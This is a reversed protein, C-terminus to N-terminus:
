QVEPYLVFKAFNDFKIYKKATNLIDDLTLDEIYKKWMEISDEPDNNIYYYYIQNTWFWNEKQNVELERKLIEKVKNLYIEKQKNTGVDKLVSIADDTLENVRDPNCGFTINLSYWQKPFPNTQFWAGVGYTGGKEERLVERLRINLVENLARTLFRERYNWEFPGTIILRVYSKKEIGKKFQKDIKNKFPVAGDDKWNEKVNKSPISGIYKKVYSKITDLDFNGVFVFIFDSPNSFREFFIDYMKNMNFQEIDAETLPLRRPHWNWMYCQISDRFVKEPRNKSDIINSYIQKKVSNFAEKDIRPETFYLNILEFLTVLDKPSASGSLSEQYNSIQPSLSVKKDSLYKELETRNFQGIGSEEVVDASYVANIYDNDPVLSAGGLSYANFLIEDNKFDTKKLVVTAGNDLKLELAGLQKLEKEQVIKGETVKRNFLPKTPVIDVYPDIKKNSIEVFLKKIDDANPVVVDPREPLSIAIVANENKIFKKSLANVEELKIDPLWQKVLEYEMEIGPTPEGRLFNRVYEFAYNISENKERENYLSEYKRLIEKKAREFETPTFGHQYARFAELLLTEVCRNVENGIAGAFLIFTSNKRGLPNLGSFAIFKFPPNEKRLYENLRYDLMTTYIRTLLNDRYSKYTGEKIEGGKFNIEVRPFSLEKDTAISVFIDKHSPIELYERKRPNKPKPIRTFKEKIIKEVQDVDFDGVAIVAMLDPRYWDQYFRKIVDYKANRIINTDGIVDHIEYKSNYYLWKNHKREVRDDAGRGLRYEEIVVGREKDIETPDYSVQHAWDELVQFGKQFQDLSDTPIQLMYVTEDWSTYANLEPGFKVGISELYDVLAQKPFNKTGNFAMHECFHALGNQDPDECIAGANVVLMLEARKEPKKNYRIYYKLGNPLTGVKLKPDIPMIEDLSKYNVTPQSFVFTSFIFVFFVFLRFTPKQLM